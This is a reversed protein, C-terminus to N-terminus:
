EKWVKGKEVRFYNVNMNKFYEVPQAVTIITQVDKIKNLLLKQRTPDLESLVDDLLLVPYEGLDEKMMELETLKLALTATRQQGQSGYYRLDTEGLKIIIDDKHPGVTTFGRKLDTEHNKELIEMIANEIDERDNISDKYECYLDEKNSSLYKHMQNVKPQLRKCFDRRAKIIPVARQALLTDWVFLDSEKNTEKLLSNRQELVKNYENLAYFYNKSVQSLEIDMFRRRKQPGEKILDLDEPSFIVGSLQGLIESIRSIALGNVLIRKKQGRALVMDVTHKGDRQYNEIRVRAWPKDFHIMDFERNTRHSKGTCLLYIAEVINTKGQGNDGYLITIGKPFNLELNEYSRFNWLQLKNLYM